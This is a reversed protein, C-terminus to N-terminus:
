ADISHIGDERAKRVTCGSRQQRRGKQRLHIEPGKILREDGKGGADGADKTANRLVPGIFRIPTQAGPSNPPHLKRQADRGQRAAAKRSGRPNDDAFSTGACSSRAPVRSASRDRRREASPSRRVMEAAPFASDPRPEGKGRIM